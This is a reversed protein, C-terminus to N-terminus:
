QYGEGPLLSQISHVVTNDLLAAGSNYASAIAAPELTGPLTYAVIRQEGLGLTLLLALLVLAALIPHHRKFKLSM